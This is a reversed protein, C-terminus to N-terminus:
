LYDSADVPAKAGDDAEYFPMPEVGAMQAIFTGPFIQISTNLQSVSANYFRRAASIQAEVENYTRQAQVMNDSSKLDPYAEVAVMLKGMAGGLKEAAQLHEGVANPDRADYGAEMRTRLETVETILEKEHEMFKKAIKLISPILDSRKQLQVDIGSLAELAKNRRSIITAYWGYVLGLVVGAVIFFTM